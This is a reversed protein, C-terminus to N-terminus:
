SLPEYDMIEHNYYDVVHERMQVADWQVHTITCSTLLILAGFVYAKARATQIDIFSSRTASIPFLEKM